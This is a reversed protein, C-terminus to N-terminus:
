LDEETKVQIGNQLCAETFTGNGDVLKGSFTGDYIKSCGCSPSRSKLIASTAHVMRAIKLAEETGREFERTVDVGDKRVVKEGIREASLRPTPLGGLQEPCVPIAQGAAVLRIVYECPKSAGDYRCGIGALCASVIFM